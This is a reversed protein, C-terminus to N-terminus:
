GDWVKDRWLSGGMWVGNNWLTELSPAAFIAVPYVFGIIARKAANIPGPYPRRMYPRGVGVVAMRKAQTDFAM